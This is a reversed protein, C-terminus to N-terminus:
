QRAGTVSLFAYSSTSIEYTYSVLYNIVLNSKFFNPFMM